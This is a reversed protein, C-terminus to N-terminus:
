CPVHLYLRYFMVCFAAVLVVFYFQQISCFVNLSCWIYMVYSTLMPFYLNFLLVFHLHDDTLFRRYVCKFLQLILDNHLYGMVVSM